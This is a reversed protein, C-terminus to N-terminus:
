GSQRTLVPCGRAAVYLATYELAGTWCRPRMRSASVQEPELEVRVADASALVLGSITVPSTPYNGGRRDVRVSVDNVLVRKVRGNHLGSGDRVM